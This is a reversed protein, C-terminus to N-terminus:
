TKNSLRFTPLYLHHFIGPYYIVNVLQSLWDASLIDLDEYHPGGTKGAACLHCVGPLVTAAAASKRINNFSRNMFGVDRLFPADGCMGIVAVKFVRGQVQIGDNLLEALKEGWLKLLDRFVSKDEKIFKNHIAAFLFRNGLSNGLLNIGMAVENAEADTHKRKRRQPQAISPQMDPVQCKSTGRGLAPFMSCIMISEKKFTRGGDGHLFYPILSGFDADSLGLQFVDHRPYALKYTGWFDILTESARQLPVGIIRHIGQKAISLIVDKPQLVPHELNTKGLKVNTISIDLAEGCALLTKFLPTDADDM